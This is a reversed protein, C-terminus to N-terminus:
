DEWCKKKLLQYVKSLMDRSDPEYRVYREFDEQMDSLIGNRQETTKINAIKPRYKDYFGMVFAPCREVDALQKIHNMKEKLRGVRLVELTVALTLQKIFECEGYRKEIKPVEIAMCELAKNTEMDRYREHAEQVDKYMTAYDM